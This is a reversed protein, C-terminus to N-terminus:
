LAGNPSVRESAAGRQRGDPKSREVYRIAEGGDEVEHVGALRFKAALLAKLRGSDAFNMQCGYTRIHFRM